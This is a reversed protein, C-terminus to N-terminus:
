WFRRLLAASAISAFVRTRERSLVPRQVFWVPAAGDHARFDSARVNWGAGVLRPGPWVSPRVACISFREVATCAADETAFGDPPHPVLGM